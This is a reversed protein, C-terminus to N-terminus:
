PNLVVPPVLTAWLPCLIRGSRREPRLLIMRADLVLVTDGFGKFPIRICTRLEQGLVSNM